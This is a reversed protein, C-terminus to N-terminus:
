PRFEIDETDKQKMLKPLSVAGQRSFGWEVHYKEEAKLPESFLSSYDAFRITYSEKPSFSIDASLLIPDTAWDKKRRLVVHIFTAEGGFSKYYSGWRDKLDLRLSSAEKDVQYSSFSVGSPDPETLIKKKPALDVIGSNKRFKSDYEYATELEDFYLWHGQLCMRFTEAEWPHPTNAKRDQIFIQVKERVSGRWRRRCDRYQGGRGDPRWECYDEWEESRLWEPESASDEPSFTWKVCETTWDSTGFSRSPVPATEGAEKELEKEAPTKHGETQQSFTKESPKYSDLRVRRVELADLPACIILFVTGFAFGKIRSAIFPKM